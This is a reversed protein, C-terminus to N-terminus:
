NGRLLYAGNIRHFAKKCSEEEDDKGKEAGPEKRGPVLLVVGSVLRSGSGGLDAVRGKEARVELGDDKMLIAEEDGVGRSISDINEVGIRVFKKRADGDSDIGNADGDSGIAELDPDAIVDGIGDADDVGIGFARTVKVDDCGHLVDVEFLAGCVEVFGDADGEGAIM